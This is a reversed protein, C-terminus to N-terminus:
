LWLLNEALKRGHCPKIQKRSDPFNLETTAIQKHKIHRNGHDCARTFHKCDCLWATQRNSWRGQVVCGVPCCNLITSQPTQWHTCCLPVTFLLINGNIRKKTYRNEGHPISTNSQLWNTIPLQDQTFTFVPAFSSHLSSRVRQTPMPFLQRQEKWVIKMPPSLAYSSFPITVSSKHEKWNSVCIEHAYQLAILSLFEEESGFNM